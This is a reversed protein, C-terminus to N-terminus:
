LAMPCGQTPLLLWKRRESLTGRGGAVEDKRRQGGSVVLFLLWLCLHVLHQEVRMKYQYFSGPRPILNLVERELVAEERGVSSSVRLLSNMEKECLSHVVREFVGELEFEQWYDKLPRGDCKSGRWAFWIRRSGTKNEEGKVGGGMWMFVGLASGYHRSNRCGLIWVGWTM